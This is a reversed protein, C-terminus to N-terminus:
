LSPSFSPSSSASAVARSSPVAAAAASASESARRAIPSRTIAASPRMPRQAGSTTATTVLASPWKGAASRADATAASTLNM